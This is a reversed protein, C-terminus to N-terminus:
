LLNGAGGWRRILAQDDMKQWRRKWPRMLRVTGLKKREDCTWLKLLIKNWSAYFMYVCSRQQTLATGKM